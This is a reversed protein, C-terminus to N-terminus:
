PRSWSLTGAIPALSADILQSSSKTAALDIPWPARYRLRLWPEDAEPASGDVLCTMAWGSEEGDFAGGSELGCDALLELSPPGVWSPLHQLTASWAAPPVDAAVRLELLHEPWVLSELGVATRLLLVVDGVTLRGDGVAVRRGGDELHPAVDVLRHEASGEAPADLGVSWRLAAVLDSVDVLGDPSGLPTVDGPLWARAPPRTVGGACSQVLLGASLRRLIELDEEDFRSDGRPCWYAAEGEPGTERKGPAVDGCEALRGEVDRSDDLAASLDLALLYDALDVRSDGAGEPWLDGGLCAVVEVTGRLSAIPADEGEGRPEGAEVALESAGLEADEGVRYSLSALHGVPLADASESELAVVLADDGVRSGSLGFSEPLDEGRLGEAEGLVAPDHVAELRLASAFAEETALVALEVTEGPVGLGRRLNMKGCDSEAALEVLAEREEETLVGSRALDRTSHSVCKVYQGHNRWGGDCSCLDDLTCGAVLATQGPDSCPCADNENLTGDADLDEGTSADGWGLDVGCLQVISCGDEDVVAGAPTARCLDLDDSVGDGDCDPPTGLVQELEEDTLAVGHIRLDDIRGVQPRTDRFTGIELSQLRIGNWQDLRAPDTLDQWAGNVWVRLDHRRGGPLKTGSLDARLAILMRTDAPVTQSSVVRVSSFDFFVRQSRFGLLFWDPGDTDSSLLVFDGGNGTREAWGTITWEHQLLLPDAAAGSQYGLSSSYSGAEIRGADSTFSASRGCDNALPEAGLGVPAVVQAVDGAGSVEEAAFAGGTEDLTWHLVLGCGEDGVREGAPSDPCADAPDPVGDADSDACPVATITLNDIGFSEDNVAQDLGSGFGLKVSASTSYWPITYRFTRDGWGSFGRQARTEQYATALPPADYDAWPFSDAVVLEDDIEVLFSEGDWSDIQYFDFGIELCRGASGVGFSKETVISGNGTFRGLFETFIPDAAAAAETSNNSWGTAGGEFDESHLLQARAPAGCALALPLLALLRRLDPALARTSPM